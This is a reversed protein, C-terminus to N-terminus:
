AGIEFPLSHQLKIMFSQIAANATVFLNQTMEWFGSVDIVFYDDEHLLM